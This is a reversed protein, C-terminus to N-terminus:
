EKITLKYAEIAAEAKCKTCDCSGVHSLSCTDRANLSVQELVKILTKGAQKLKAYKAETYAAQNALNAIAAETKKVVKQVWDPDSPLIGWFAGIDSLAREAEALRRGRSALDAYARAALKQTITPM